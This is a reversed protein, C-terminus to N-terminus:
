RRGCISARWMYQATEWLEEALMFNPWALSNHSDTIGFKLFVQEVPPRCLLLINAFIFAIFNSGVPHQFNTDESLGVYCM